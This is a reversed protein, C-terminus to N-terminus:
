ATHDSAGLHGRNICVCGLRSAGRTRDDSRPCLQKADGHVASKDQTIAASVIGGRRDAGAMDCGLHWRRNSASPDRWLDFSLTHDGAPLKVDILGSHPHPAIPLPAGNVSARWGPFYMLNLTLTTPAPLNVRFVQRQFRSAVLAGSAGPPLSKPLRNIPKGAQYDAVLPSTHFARDVWIPNFEGLSTTGVAASKVEYRVVEAPSSRKAGPPLKQPYLNVLATGLLLLVAVAGAASIWRPAWRGLSYIAFACLWSLGIETFGHWRFPWEFLDVFPLAAWVPESWKTAMFGCFVALALLFLGAAMQVRDVTQRPQASKATRRRRQWALMTVFALAGLLGLWVQVAGLSLPFFPNIAGTDLRPSLAILDTLAIFRSRFDSAVIRNLQVYDGEFLAPIWFWASLLWGLGVAGVIHRLARWNQTGIWLFITLGGIMGMMLLAVANHSLMTGMVALALVLAYRKRQTRFLQISAWCIWPQFSWALLQPLNGQIFLERLVIPAYLYAAAGAAGPWIGMRSRSLRYTGYGAILVTLIMAGKYAFELSLGTVHIAATVYYFLPAAYVFIPLGYGYGLNQSWRPILVGDAWAHVIEAARIFHVPGDATNPVGGPVLAWLVPAMIVLPILFDPHLISAKLKNM